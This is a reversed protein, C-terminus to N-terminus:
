DAQVGMPAAQPARQLGQFATCAHYGANRRGRQMHLAHAQLGLWVRKDSVLLINHPKLDGHLTTSKHMFKLAEAIDLATLLACRTKNIRSGRKWSIEQALPKTPPKAPDVLYDKLSGARAPAEQTVHRANLRASRRWGAAVLTLADRCRSGAEACAASSCLAQHRMCPVPQCTVGLDCHEMAIRMQLKVADPLNSPRQSPRNGAAETYTREIDALNDLPTWATNLDAAGIDLPRGTKPDLCRVDAWYTEVIAEHKMYQQISPENLPLYEALNHDRGPRFLKNSSLEKMAFFEPMQRRDTQV